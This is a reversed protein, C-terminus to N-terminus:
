VARKHECAWAIAERQWRPMRGPSSSGKGRRLRRCCRLGAKLLELSIRIIVARLGASFPYRAVTSTHKPGRPTSRCGVVGEGTKCCPLTSRDSAGISVKSLYLVGSLAPVLLCVKTENRQDGLVERVRVSNRDPPPSPRCNLWGLSTAGPCHSNGWFHQGGSGRRWQCTPAERKFFAGHVSNTGASESAHQSLIPM